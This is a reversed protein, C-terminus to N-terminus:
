KIKQILENLEKANDVIYDAKCDLLEERSGYGWTVGISKIDSQKAGNIDSYRDGIMYVKERSSIELKKLVYEIVDHKKSREADETAGGIFNFYGDMKRNKLIEISQKEPKSTAVAVINDRRIYELADCVGDYFTNEYQGKAKYYQRFYEITKDSLNKSFGLKNIFTDELPPGIFNKINDINYDKYGIKEFGYLFGNIIGEKTDLLTGDLDFLYVM